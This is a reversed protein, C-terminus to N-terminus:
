FWSGIEDGVDSLAGGVDGAVDSIASGASSIVNGAADIAQGAANQLQGNVINMAAAPFDPIVNVIGSLHSAVANGADGINGVVQGGM